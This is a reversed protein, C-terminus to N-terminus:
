EMGVVLLLVEEVGGGGASGIVVFVINHVRDLWDADQQQHSIQPPSIHPNGMKTSDHIFNSTAPGKRPQQHSLNFLICERNPVIKQFPNV